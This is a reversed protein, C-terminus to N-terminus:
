ADEVFPGGFRLGCRPLRLLARGADLSVCSLAAVDAAVVSVSYSLLM